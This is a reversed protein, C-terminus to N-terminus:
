TLSSDIASAKRAYMSKTMCRLLYVADPPVSLYFCSVKRVRKKDGIGYCEITVSLVTRVDQYDMPVSEM